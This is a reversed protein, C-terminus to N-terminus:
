NSTEHRAWQDGEGGDNAPAASHIAMLRESEESLRTSSSGQTWDFFQVPQVKRPEGFAVVAQGRELNQIDSEYGSFAGGSAKVLDRVDEEFTLRLTVFNDCQSLINDDIGSPRQTVLALGIQFSRGTKAFNVFISGERVKERSLLLHAEEVVYVFPVVKKQEEPPGSSHRENYNYLSNALVTSLIMRDEDTLGSKDLIITKGQQLLERIDELCSSEGAKAIFRARYLKELEKIVGLIPLYSSRDFDALQYAGDEGSGSRELRRQIEKTRVIFAKFAKYWETTDPSGDRDKRMLITFLDPRDQYIDLFQRQPSTLHTAVERLTIPPIDELRFRLPRIGAIQRGLETGPFKEPRPTFLFLNQRADPHHKLGPVLQGMENTIDDVYECKLDDILKGYSTKELWYRCINRILTSKGYGSAGTILTRYGAFRDQMSVVAGLERRGSRLHGVLFGKSVDADAIIREEREDTPTLFTQLVTPQDLTPQLRGDETLEGELRTWAKESCYYELSREDFPQDPNARLSSLILNLDFDGGYGLDVARLLFRRNYRRDHGVWTSGLSVRPQTQRSDFLVEYLGKSREKGVLVNLPEAREQVVKM